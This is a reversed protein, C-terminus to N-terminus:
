LGTLLLLYSRRFFQVHARCAGQGRYAVETDRVDRLHVGKTDPISHYTNGPATYYLMASTHLHHRRLLVARQQLLPIGVLRGDCLRELRLESFPLALLGVTDYHSLIFLM